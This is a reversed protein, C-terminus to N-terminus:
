QAEGGRPAGRPGGRFDGRPGGRGRYGGRGEGRGRGGGRHDGRPGGRGRYGGRGEGQPGGRARGGRNHTVEHFGDNGNSAAPTPAAPEPTDDAWSQISTIPAVAHPTETEALDRPVMEFSEALPDDSGSPQKDWQEEAAANAAGTDVLGAAPANM